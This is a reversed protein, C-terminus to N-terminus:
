SLRSQGRWRTGSRSSAAVREHLAAIDEAPATSGIHVVARINPPSSSDSMTRPSIPAGLAVPEDSRIPDFHRVLAGSRFSGTWDVAAKWTTAARGPEEEIAKVLSGVAPLDVDNLLQTTM